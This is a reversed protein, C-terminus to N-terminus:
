LEVQIRENKAINQAGLASTANTPVGINGLQLKDVSTADLGEQYDRTDKSSELPMKVKLIM